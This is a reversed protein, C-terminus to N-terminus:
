LKSHLWASVLNELKKLIVPEHPSHSANRLIHMEKNETLSDYFKKIYNPPISDDNECAILFIQNANKGENFLSHKQAEQIVDYPSVM